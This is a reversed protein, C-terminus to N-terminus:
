PAPLFFLYQCTGCGLFVQVKMGLLSFDHLFFLLIHYFYQAWRLSAKVKWLQQEAKSCSKGLHESLQPALDWLSKVWKLSWSLFDWCLSWLSALSHRLDEWVSTFFDSTQQVRPLYAVSQMVNRKQNLSSFVLTTIWGDQWCAWFMRWSSCYYYCLSVCCLVTLSRM